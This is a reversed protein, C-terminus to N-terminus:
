EEGIRLLESLIEDQLNTDARAPDVVTGAHYEERIKRLDEQADKVESKAIGVNSQYIQRFQARGGDYLRVADSAPLDKQLLVERIRQKAAEYKPGDPVTLAAMYYGMSTGTIKTEIKELEQAVGFFLEGLKSPPIRSAAAELKATSLEGKSIGLALRELTPRKLGSGSQLKTRDLSSSRELKAGDLQGLAPTACAFTILAVTRWSDASITM